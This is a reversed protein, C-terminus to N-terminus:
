ATITLKPRQAANSWDSSYFAIYNGSETKAKLFFGTNDYTGSVYEQVLQTVDFDYYKNDPVTSAPFTLSAYPTSGQAVSNKDYWNGGATSWLTGSSRYNWSVYKPDWEVPRYLEVVTDSTRTTASPYYWYLSLTAKTITDTPDYSSLDFMLVNRCASTSKGIDLYTSDSLVTSSLSERLRNDSTASYEVTVVPKTVVVKLTDTSTQGNADTVTLTVIYNGSSSYTKTATVGTAESTIGNSADFDWSYSVIGKDDSSASGDFSIASGVTANKDAGAEAVPSEDTSVPTVTVTLKSRMAANSAESSYFAIYNGSESKAKLFFGTNKYTGSVYEQVLQTVDFDYYKNGPVTSAPFTLSAYATSGQSVGNKDYWDGGATNWLIGSARYNWSVYEPDWEVPRYVEVVTNSSRTTASPYYWYLSLTAESITDTTNYPSLDFWMVDRSSSSSKGIDIYTSDSYVTNPATERLRNDYIAQDSISSLPSSVVVKLTDVVAQGSTDTVTLTVTYNGATTYTKTATVGTAESTIGNSADFDWSYSVIGNDDSSASGNFNVASGTTATKDSGAEAVPAEDSSVPTATVTLKPRMAANSSESSYFAIYNGSESKAKLFFGTNKYTGNVYEKVLQTVDFDYYKNGPVTSAPFTLTAYPNSGQSVGSKDYWNGGATSWLTGSARYNWSVYEPDWEVPRYIEVVTDSTRTASAPYYWYLSLTSETITDTTKYASLDFWMVDRSSSSSKGIDLYTSDSYVTSPATERLRNDYITQDSVSNVPSSVVVKVTDTATQGNTDTVTLTVTYNGATTYTKTATVGTVESTIGNSADFDWSYSLIGNDDNSASGDFSVVSDTTANKDSGAEAVPAEDSSVSVATATLKPRMAANSAESSYFAIYNGSESKAKLFFGTNKYTGSVYEQVLDTVDFDYYKNGPVISAPFTLSAYPTSGQSVGNKDYWDGGATNWLTGSTRYNWSVYEPDWEVPRYVEVVTDSTRTTASPYYWYLSLTAESITDTTNYASLDFWMVDRYSSTSKGIDLYTSDSYVTIPATERLRNDYVTVNDEYQDSIASASSGSKSAQATNGYRGINIMGGNPSPESSYSSSSYGADILTSSVSDKVWSGISYHGVTSQLHYDRASITSTTSDVCLPDVNRNNSMTFGSGYTQGNKNNYIDNNQVVFKSYTPNTNWIGVGSGTVSSVGDTNMIINNRVYTTFETQQQRRGYRLYYKIAAHGGDDFVNNEIITNDFDGLVIAANSFGTNTSYQGVKTFTNHHIYVDKAHIVNDQYNASIWIGAGNTTHIKNNYIEIDDFIYNSTSSTGIQIAPGTSDSSISSYILNDHISSDTCGDSYRCGSNTRTVITNYAHEVNSCGIAYLADHGLKYVDNYLFKINSGHTIKLGDGCGWELRMNSVEVNNAYDFYMLNYYGDGLSVGQNASNGDITFGTVIINDDTGSNAILPVDSSWDANSVLKIEATSDGTLVTNAGIYLTSDIWYTNPGRLYVTGGGLGDIYILAKNIEIHDNTGDCKYNVTGSTSSTGVYVISSDTSCGALPITIFFLILSLSIVNKLIM